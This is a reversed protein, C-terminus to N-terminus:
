PVLIDRDFVRGGGWQFHLTYRGAGARVWSSVGKYPLSRATGPGLQSKPADLALGGGGLVIGTSGDPLRLSVGDTAPNAYLDDISAGVEHMTVVIANPTLAAPDFTFSAGNLQTPAPTHLTQSPQVDLRFDFEGAPTLTSGYSSGGQGNPIPTSNQLTSLLLRVGSTSGTRPRLPADFVVIQDGTPASTAGLGANVFGADDYLTLPNTQVTVEPGHRLILVTRAADSYGGILRADITGHSLPQDYRTVLDKVNELHAAILDEPPISKGRSPTATTAGGPQSGPGIRHSERTVGVFVVAAILLPFALVAAYALRVGHGTPKKHQASATMLARNALLPPPEASIRSLRATLADKEPLSTM